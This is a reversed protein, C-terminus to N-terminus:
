CQYFFAHAAANLKVTVLHRKSLTAYKILMATQWQYRHIFDLSADYAWSEAKRVESLLSSIIELTTASFKPGHHHKADRVAPHSIEM